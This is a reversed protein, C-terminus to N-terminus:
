KKANSCSWRTSKINLIIIVELLHSFTTTKQNRIKKRRSLYLYTHMNRYLIKSSNGQIRKYISKEIAHLWKYEESARASLPWCFQLQKNSVWFYVNILLASFNSAFNSQHLLRQILIPSSFMTLFIELALILFYM